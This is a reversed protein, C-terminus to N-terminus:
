ERKPKWAIFATVSIVFIVLGGLNLLSGLLFCILLLVFFRFFFGLM